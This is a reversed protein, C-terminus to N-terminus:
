TMSGLGEIIHVTLYQSANQGGIEKSHAELNRLTRPTSSLSFSLRRLADDHLGTQADAATGGFKWPDTSGFVGDTKNRVAAIIEFM